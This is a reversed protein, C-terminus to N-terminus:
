CPSGGTCIAHGLCRNVGDAPLSGWCDCFCVFLSLSLSLSEGDLDSFSSGMSPTGESGERSAGKGKGAAPGKGALGTM